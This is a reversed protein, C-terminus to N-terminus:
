VRREPESIPNDPGHRAREGARLTRSSPNSPYRVQKVLTESNGLMWGQFGQYGQLPVSRARARPVLAVGLRGAKPQAERADVVM